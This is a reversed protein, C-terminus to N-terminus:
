NQDKVSSFPSVSKVTTLIRDAMMQLDVEHKNVMDQALDSGCFFVAGSREVSLDLIMGGVM